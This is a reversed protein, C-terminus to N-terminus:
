GETPIPPEIELPLAALGHPQCRVVDLALTLFSHLLVEAGTYVKMCFCGVLHLPTDFNIIKHKCLARCTEPPVGGMM